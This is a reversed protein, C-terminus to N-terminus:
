VPPEVCGMTLRKTEDQGFSPLPAVTASVEVLNEPAEMACQDIAVDRPRRRQTSRCSHAEPWIEEVLQASANRQRFYDAAAADLQNRTPPFKGRKARKM